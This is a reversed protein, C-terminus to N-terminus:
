ETIEQEHGCECLAFKSEVNPHGKIPYNEEEIWRNECGCAECKM